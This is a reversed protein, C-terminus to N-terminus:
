SLDWIKLKKNSIMERRKWGRCSIDFIVSRSRIVLRQLSRFLNYIGCVKYWICHYELWLWCAKLFLYLNILILHYFLTVILLSLRVQSKLHKIEIEYKEILSTQIELEQQKGELEATLTSRELEARLICCAYNPFFDSWYAWLYDILLVPIYRLVLLPLYSSIHTGHM